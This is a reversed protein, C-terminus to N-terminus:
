RSGAVASARAEISSQAALVLDVYWQAHNYRYLARRVGKPTGDAAGDCLYRAATWVADPTSWPDKVGDRDGDVGYGAFTAPMFQMPGIAGASSPGNNRGHRSEVQGVAALLTWSMGPCSGAASRYEREFAAPIGLAGVMDPEALPAADQAARAATLRAQADRVARASRAAADLRDLTARARRLAEAAASAEDQVDRLTRSLRLDADEAAQAAATSRSARASATALGLGSRHLVDDRIRGVMSARWLADDPDTAALVTMALGAPGGEAYLARVRAQHAVDEARVSASDAARVRDLVATDAFAAALRAAARRARESHVAYEETLDDVRAAAAAADQEAAAAAETAETAEAPAALLLGLLVSATALV